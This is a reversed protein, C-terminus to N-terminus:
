KVSRFIILDYKELLKRSHKSLKLKRAERRSFFAMGCGEHVQMQRFTKMSVKFLFVNLYENYIKGQGICSHIPPLVNLEESIERYAAHVPGTDSKEIKGGFISWVNPYKYDHTRKQLLIQNHRNVIVLSVNGKM